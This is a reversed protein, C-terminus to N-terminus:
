KYFIHNEITVIRQLYNSWEPNVYDAHYWLAGETIDIPTYNLLEEAVGIAQLWTFSDTPIDSKGDCFWSFQCQGIVPVEKGKYNTYYEGQYIVDCVTDPFQSSMSRNLTVLGVAIKGSLPQNGAVFYINKAMCMLEEDFEGAVISWQSFTKTSLLSLIFFLLIKFNLKKNELM